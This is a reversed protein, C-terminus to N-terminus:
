EGLKSEILKAISLAEKEIKQKDEGEIMVRVLPETGSTRILVRGNGAFAKEVSRIADLIEPEKDYRNKKAESVRANVLVQPLIRVCAGLQSLPKGTRAMIGALQIGTLLGDGTTNHELFIIHGSQEGGLSYGHNLMEELVYRDGVKTKVFEIGNKKMCIDLGMNSMVTGVLTNKKLLGREKMDIACIAMIKDGDTVVGHEDVAILRDADGDFALGLDAGQEAVIQTLKDPHTSGCHDNINCGDPTNYYPITTAGLAEFVAPAIVSASGHSCDLAIKLGDFRTDATSLLFEKYEELSNKLRVRRGIDAGTRYPIEESGKLVLEEIRDEIEDSLKFGNGDFFKIGNYEFTNHSASIMIGADAETHRSLYAVASTPAVGIVVAEAGVSTIGAVLAAELMDGSIRTDRGILIRAKHVESTLVYAGAQGLKYALESNLGENAIGRVGDTGFLRAM